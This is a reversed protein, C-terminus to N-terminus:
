RSLGAIITLTQEDLIYVDAAKVEGVAVSFAPTASASLQSVLADNSFYRRGRAVILFDGAALGRLASSDSLSVSKLDSRGARQAYYTTLGPYDAFDPTESAVTAGSRARRAIEAMVERMPADYFEDHPFYYGARTQGGGIQNVYLRFHPAIGAAAVASGCLVLAALLARPQLRLNEGRFFAALRQAIWHGAIQVGIAAAILVCPLVLTFYRTFKGGVFVFTIVWYFIWFLIFYRGDGTRKRFLQPLGVLFAALTLLPLKVGIFVFYFYWPTGKFWDQLRHSYLRGMFEYSDHGLLRYDAFSFMKHWTEPLLIAPNCLLFVAGAIAFILLYRKRGIQWRRHQLGQFIYNYSVSVAMFYPMYKSAVMAGFAAGAAWYYPEPNRDSNSERMTQTRLWFFNALLFFFVFFTDEKAIRNFAIANPDLAWLLAAILAVEAGFLEAAVLYILLATFAGFLVSPFRLAAEVPIRLTEPHAAVLSTANWKEAAVVSAVLLAKMLMPHEGNASTLGHARYDTVANLKNMEDESLSEAGLGVVRFGFGIAIIVALVILLVKRNFARPHLHGLLDPRLSATVIPAFSKSM